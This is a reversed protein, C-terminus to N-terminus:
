HERTLITIATCATEDGVRGGASHALGVRAVDVQRKGARGQLQWVLEALQAAGTAAGPHGRSLLGGSPNIPMAGGLATKGERMMKVADGAPSFGIWESATLEAVASADHLEALDIDKPGLGAEEFAQKATRTIVHEVAGRAPHGSRIATSAIRVAPGGLRIRAEDSMVLMAAAGDTLPSCMLRTLPEAIITANLVDEESIPEQYQAFPNLAAHRRNKVAVAALDRKTAGSNQLYERALKAYYNDMFISGWSGTEQKRKLMWANEQVDLAGFLATMSQDRDVAYLKDMGIVLAIRYQGARVAQSACHLATPASACANEFNFVPLDEIGTGRLAVQGPVSVQGDIVSAFSRGVYVADIQDTKVNTEELLKLVAERGLEAASRKPYRGFRVMTAAGIYSSEV